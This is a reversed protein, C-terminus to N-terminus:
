NSGDFRTSVQPDYLPCDFEAGLDIFRNMDEGDMDYCDIRFLQPTTFVQFSGREASQWTMPESQKWGDSFHAELRTLMAQIPLDEVGEVHTGESLNDYTSQHKLTVGPKYKWFSLDYSM